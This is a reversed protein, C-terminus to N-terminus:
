QAMIPILHSIGITKVWLDDTLFKKVGEMGWLDALM